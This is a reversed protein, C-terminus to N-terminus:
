EELFTVIAQGRSSDRCAAAFRICDDCTGGDDTPACAFDGECTVCDCTPEDSCRAPLTRCSYAEPVGFPHLGFGPVPGPPYGRQHGCVDPAACVTGDGQPCSQDPVDDWM